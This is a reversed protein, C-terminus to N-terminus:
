REDACPGLGLRILACVGVGRAQQAGSVVEPQKEMGEETGTIFSIQNENEDQMERYKYYSSNWM